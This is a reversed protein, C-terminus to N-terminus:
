VHARGIQAALRRPEGGSARVHYLGETTGFVITGDSRWAGGTPRGIIRAVLSPTGGAVPVKMLDAARGFFGVWQGDSSFFPNAAAVELTVGEAQDLRRILLRSSSAYAVRSGDSSIALHHEGFAAPFPAELSPMSLRVMSAATSAGRGVIYGTVGVALSVGCALLWVASRFRRGHSPAPVDGAEPVFADAIELRADGIDRLRAAVDKALCRRLLRRIPAPTDHPLQTWDPESELVKVLCDSATVATAHIKILVEHAKPAPKKVERLQLVEPPGYKTCVIAKM